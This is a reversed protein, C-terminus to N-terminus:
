VAQGREGGGCLGPLDARNLREEGFAVAKSVERDVKAGGDLQGLDFVNEGLTDQAVVRHQV